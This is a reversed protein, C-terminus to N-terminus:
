YNITVNPIDGDIIAVLIRISIEVPEADAGVIRGIVMLAAEEVRARHAKDEVRKREIEALAKAKAEVEAKEKAAADIIAQKEREAKTAADKADQEAQAKAEEVAALKDAEHQIDALRNLERLDAEDQKAKQEAEKAAMEAERRELDALRDVEAKEEALREAEVVAEAEARKKAEIEDLPKMNETIMKELPATLEKAKADIKKGITLIDAKTAKRANEIDGKGGRLRHVWSRLAAEGEETTHDFSQLENKKVLDAVMAAHPDFVALSMNEEAM